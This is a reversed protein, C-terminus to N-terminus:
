VQKDYEDKMDERYELFFIPVYHFLMSLGASAADVASCAESMTM